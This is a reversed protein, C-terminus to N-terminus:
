LIAALRRFRAAIRRLWRSGVSAAVRFRDHGCRWWGRGAWNGCAGATCSRCARCRLGRVPESRRDARNAGRTAVSSSTARVSGALGQAWHEREPDAVATSAPTGDRGFAPSVPVAEHGQAPAAPVPTTTALTQARAALATSRPHMCTYKDVRRGVLASPSQTPSLHAAGVPHTQWLFPNTRCSTTM